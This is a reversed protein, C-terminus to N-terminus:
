PKDKDEIPVILGLMIFLKGILGLKRKSPETETSTERSEEIEKKEEYPTILGLTTFLNGFTGLEQKTRNM